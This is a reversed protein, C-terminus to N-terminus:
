AGKKREVYLAVIACVFYCLGLACQVGHILGTTHESWIAMLTGIVLCTNSRSM